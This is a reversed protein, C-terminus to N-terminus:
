HFFLLLTYYFVFFGGEPILWLSSKKSPGFDLFTSVKNSAINQYDTIQKKILGHQLGFLFVQGNLGLAKSIM